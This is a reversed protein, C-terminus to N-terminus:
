ATPEHRPIIVLVAGVVLALAAPILSWHFQTAEDSVTAVPSSRVWVTRHQILRVGSATLIVVTAISLVILVAGLKRRTSTKM